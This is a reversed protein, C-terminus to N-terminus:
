FENALAICIQAPLYFFWIGYAVAGVGGPLAYRLGLCLDCAWFLSLGVAFTRVRRDFRQLHWAEVANVSLQSFSKLAAASLPTVLNTGAANSALRLVVLAVGYLFVRWAVSQMHDQWVFRRVRGRHWMLRAAHVAQVCCFFLVGMLYEDTFLLFWDAIVTLFLAVPVFWNHSQRTQVFALGACVMISLYKLRDTPRGLLDGILFSLYLLGEIALFYRIQKPLSSGKLINIM